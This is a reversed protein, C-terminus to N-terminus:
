IKVKRKLAKLTETKILTSLESKNDKVFQLVPNGDVYSYQRLAWGIPKRIFSQSEHM